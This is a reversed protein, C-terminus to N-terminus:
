LALVLHHQEQEALKLSPIKTSLGWIIGKIQLRTSEFRRRDFLDHQRM